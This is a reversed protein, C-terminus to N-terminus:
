IGGLADVYEAFIAKQTLDNFLDIDTDVSAPTYGAALEGYKDFLKEQLEITSLMLYDNFKYQTTAAPNLMFSKAIYECAKDLNCQNEFDVVRYVVTGTPTVKWNATLTAVQTSGVYSAIQAYQGFGLTSSYIYVWKNAYFNDTGHQAVSARDGATLGSALTITGAAIAAATGSALNVLYGSLCKVIAPYSTSPYANEWAQAAATKGTVSSANGLQYLTTPNYITFTDTNTIATTTTVVTATVSSGTYDTIMRAKATGVTVIFMNNYADDVASASADLIINTATANAQCTGTRVVGQNATILKPALAAVQDYTLLSTAGATQTTCAIWINSYTNDVLTGIYTSIDGTTIGSVDKLTATPNKYRLINAALVQAATAGAASSYIILDAM